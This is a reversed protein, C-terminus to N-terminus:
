FPLPSVIDIEQRTKPHPFILRAAHLHLRTPIVALSQDKMGDGYLLDGLIPHKISALHVRIQHRVGTKIKIDLLTTQQKGDFKMVKYITEAEQAKNRIADRRHEYASMKRSNKEHSGIPSKIRGPEKIQGHVMAVYWKQVKGQGFLKRVQTYTEENRAFIVLGSTETDLRHCAGWDSGGVKRVEPFTKAVLHSLTEEFLKQPLPQTPIGIVKEVVILDDDQWHIKPKKFM